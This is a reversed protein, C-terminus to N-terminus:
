PLKEGLYINCKTYDTLSLTTPAQNKLKMKTFVKTITDKYLSCYLLFHQETLEEEEQQCFKDADVLTSPWHDKETEPRGSPIQNYSPRDLNRSAQTREITGMKRWTKRGTKFQVDSHSVRIQDINVGQM